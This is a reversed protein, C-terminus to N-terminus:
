EKKRGAGTEPRVKHRRLEQAPTGAVTAHDPVDHLVVSGAGTYAGEGVRVPARLLTGVGIFAGSGITTRHKALGDYNATITGAGVNVGDGVMADGLYSCHGMKTGAGLSSNKTEAFNGMHVGSGLTTGVRLHCFPGISVHDAIDAFEIQSSHITCYDGISSAIIRTQAGIHCSRGITVGAEVIV